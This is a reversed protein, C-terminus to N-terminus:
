ATRYWMNVVLYPPMNLHGQSLTVYGGNKTASINGTFMSENTYTKGTPKGYQVQATSYDGTNDPRATKMEHYHPPLHQAELTVYSAGGTNGASYTITSVTPDTGAALLFRGDIQQWTGGFLTAPSTSNVSMYISGVPYIDDITVGEYAQWTGDGRLYKENDGASPAPVVGATGATSAGAGTMVSINIAKNSPVLATGAVSVSDITNVEAGIAIGALKTKEESTFNNDTHVYNADSVFNSDNTLDSTMAPISPKNLIQADGSVANWDANVNVEAGTAIGNLKEKDSASM